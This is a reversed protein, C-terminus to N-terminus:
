QKKKIKRHRYNLEIRRARKNNSQNRYERSVVTVIIFLSVIGGFVAPSVM